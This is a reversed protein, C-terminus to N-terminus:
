DDYFKGKGSFKVGFFLLVALLVYIVYLDM